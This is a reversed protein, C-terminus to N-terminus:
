ELRLSKMNYQQNINASIMINNNERPVQVMLPRPETVFCLILIAQPCSSEESRLRVGVDECMMVGCVTAQLFAEWQDVIIVHVQYQGRMPRPGRSFVWTRRVTAAVEGNMPWKRQKWDMIQSVHSTVHKGLDGDDGILPWYGRWTIVRSWHSTVRSTVHDCTHWAEADPTVWVLGRAGCIRRDTLPPTNDINQGFNPLIISANPASFLQFNSLHMIKTVTWYDEYKQNM